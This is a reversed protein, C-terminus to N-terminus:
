MVDCIMYIMYIDHEYRITDYTMDYIYWIDYGTMDYIM